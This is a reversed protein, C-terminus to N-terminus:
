KSVHVGLFRLADNYGCKYVRQLEKKCPPFLAQFGREANQFNVFINMNKGFQTKLLSLSHKDKPCIDFDGSFPSVRITRGHEFVPLNDSFGGDLWKQTPPFIFVFKPQSWSNFFNLWKGGVHVTCCVKKTMKNKDLM